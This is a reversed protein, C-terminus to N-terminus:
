NSAVIGREIRRKTFDEDQISADDFRVDLTELVTKSILKGGRVTRAEVRRAFWGTRQKEFQSAMLYKTPGGNASQAKFRVPVLKKKSVWIELQQYGGEDASGAKPTASIVWCDEGDVVESARVLSLKYLAPDPSSLDAYSFDSGLFSTALQGDAIRTSRKIAPLYLWREDQKGHQRYDISVFGSGQVDPPAAVQLLSKYVEPTNSSRLLVTRERSAGSADTITMKVKSSVREHARREAVAQMIASPDDPLPAPEARAASAATLVLAVWGGAIWRSM